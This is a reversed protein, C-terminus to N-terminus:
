YRYYEKYWNVFNAVGKKVDMSPKYGFNEVLDDVDAYTDIVDGPQLALLEKEADLGLAEEIAEIYNLM